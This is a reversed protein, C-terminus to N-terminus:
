QVVINTIYIDKVIPDELVQNVKQLLENKVALSGSIRLIGIGGRGPATAQAVITEKLM